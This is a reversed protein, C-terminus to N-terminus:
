VGPLLADIARLTALAESALGIGDRPVQPERINIRILRGPHTRAMHECLYRVTPVATGAGCEVIVLRKGVIGRLWRNFREEGKFARSYDWDGDNFMLINPRALAGCSPCAPLPERARMTSEDIDPTCGEASFIGAGCSRTCQLWEITGHVE